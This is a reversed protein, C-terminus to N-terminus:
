NTPESVAAVFASGLTTRYMIATMPPQEGRPGALSAFGWDVLLSCSLTWPRQEAGFRTIWHPFTLDMSSMYGGDNEGIQDFPLLEMLIQADVPSFHALTQVFHPHGAGNTVQSAILNAWMEHLIPDTERSAEEISRVFNKISEPRHVAVGTAKSRASAKALAKELTFTALAKEVAVMNDFKQRIYRGLGSTTETIPAILQEFVALLTEASRTYVEPPIAKAIQGLGAIDTAAPGNNTVDSVEM